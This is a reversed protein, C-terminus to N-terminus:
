RPVDDNEHDGARMHTMPQSSTTVQIEKALLTLSAAPLLLACSFFEESVNSDHVTGMSEKMEQIASHSLQQCGHELWPLAGRQLFILLYALAELDDCHSLEQKLHSNISAFALTGVFQNHEQM